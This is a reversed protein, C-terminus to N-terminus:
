PSARREIARHQALALEAIPAEPVASGPALEACLQRTQLQGQRFRQVPRTEHASLGVSVLRRVRPEPGAGSQALVHVLVVLLELAAVAPAFSRAPGYRPQAVEVLLPVSVREAALEAGVLAGGAARAVDSGVVAVEGDAPEGGGGGVGDVPGDEEVGLDAAVVKAAAAVALEVDESRRSPLLDDDRAGEERARDHEELAGDLVEDEGVGEVGASAVRGDLVDRGGGDHGRAAEDEARLVAAVVDTAVDGGAVDRGGGAGENKKVRHRHWM